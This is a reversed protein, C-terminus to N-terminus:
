RVELSFPWANSRERAQGSRARGAKRPKAYVGDHAERDSLYPISRQVGIERLGQRVREVDAQDRHDYTYVCIVRSNGSGSGSVNKATGCKSYPGLKGDLTAQWVKQWVDELHELSVFILWKGSHEGPFPQANPGAVGVWLNRTNALPSKYKATM